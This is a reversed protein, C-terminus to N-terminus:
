KSLEKVRDLAAQSNKTKGQKQYLKASQNYDEIAGKKDGLDSKVYGRSYYADSYDPKLKIAQNYDEIAGKKNGLNYKDRGRNSYTYAYDPKLKASQNYDEIAGKKNGLDSKAKGRSIYAQWYDSNLKIAQTYDEIAGNKDGLGYKSKGRGRYAFSDNSNLKIAQTYDEIAGNKDGLGYKANGRSRYADSSDPKLEIAYKWDDIAKQKNGLDSFSYGRRAYSLLSDPKLKIARDYDDIAGQYDGTEERSLGRDNYAAVYDSKLEIAKTFAEIAGKDDKGVLEQGRQYYTEATTSSFIPVVPNKQQNIVLSTVGILAAVGGIMAAYFNLWATRHTLHVSQNDPVKPSDPIPPNLDHLAKIVERASRYRDQHKEQLMRDLIKGLENNIPQQLYQRWKSTWKFDHVEYAKYPHRGTLLHFCAAGLSYLDSSPYAIGQIMQESPAYGPTGAITGPKLTNNTIFQKSVGFDILVLKGDDCRMINELKIDRHIVKKHVLELIPLLSILFDKIQEENWVGNAALYRELNQGAIFEQVLYLYQNDSPYALLSPIQSCQSGLDELQKAEQEFLEKAKPNYVILQKIVCEKNFRQRDEALYTVGFGGEGIRSVPCYRDSLLVLKTGCSTCYQVTDPCPPNELKCGPNLCCIM